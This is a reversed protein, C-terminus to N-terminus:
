SLSIFRYFRHHNIIDSMRSSTLIYLICILSNTRSWLIRKHMKGTMKSDKISGHIMKIEKGCYFYTNSVLFTQESFTYKHCDNQLRVAFAAYLEYLPIINHAITYM